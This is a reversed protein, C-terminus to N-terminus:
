GAAHGHGWSKSGPAFHNSKHRMPVRPHRPHSIHILSLCKVRVQLMEEPLYVYRGRANQEYVPAILLSQRKYVDLHTYSVPFIDVVCSEAHDQGAPDTTQGRDLFFM